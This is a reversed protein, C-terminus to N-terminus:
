FVVQWKDKQSNVPNQQNTGAQPRLHLPLSPPQPQLWGSSWSVPGGLPSSRNCTWYNINAKALFKAPSSFVFAQADWLIVAPNGSPSGGFHTNWSVFPLLLLAEDLSRALEPDSKGCRTTLCIVLTWIWLSSFEKGALHSCWSEQM